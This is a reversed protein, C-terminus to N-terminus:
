ESDTDSEHTLGRPAKGGVLRRVTSPASRSGQALHQIRRSRTIPPTGRVIIPAGSRKVGKKRPRGLKSRQPRGFLFLSVHREYLARSKFGYQEWAPLLPEDLPKFGHDVHTPEEPVEISLHKMTSVIGKWQHQVSEASDKGVHTMCSVHGVNIKNRRSVPLREELHEISPPPCTIKFQATLNKCDFTEEDINDLKSPMVMLVPHTAQRETEWRALTSVTIALRFRRTRTCYPEMQRITDWDVGRVYHASKQIGKLGNESAGSLIASDWWLVSSAFVSGDKEFVGLSTDVTNIGYRFFLSALIYKAKTNDDRNFVTATMRSLLQATQQQKSELRQLAQTHETQVSAIRGVNENTQAVQASIAIAFKGMREIMHMAKDMNRDFISVQTDSPLALENWNPQTLTAHGSSEQLGNSLPTLADHPEGLELGDISPLMPFGFAGHDM